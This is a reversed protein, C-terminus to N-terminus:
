TPILSNYRYQALQTYICATHEIGRDVGSCDVSNYNDIILLWDNRERLAKKIKRAIIGLDDEKVADDSSSNELNIAVKRYSEQFNTMDITLVTKSSPTWQKYYDEAYTKALQTKGVSPEGTVYLIATHNENQRKVREVAKKLKKLENPREITPHPANPALVKTHVPIVKEGLTSIIRLIDSSTFQVINRRLPTATGILQVTNAPRSASAVFVTLFTRRQVHSSPRLLMHGKTAPDIVFRKLCIRETARGTWANNFGQQLIKLM